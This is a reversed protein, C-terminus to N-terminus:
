KYKQLQINQAVVHMAGALLFAIICLSKSKM